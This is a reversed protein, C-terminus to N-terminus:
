CDAARYGVGDHLNVSGDAHLEYFGTWWPMESYDSVTLYAHDDIEDIGVARGRELGEVREARENRLDIRWIEWYLAFWNDDPSVPCLSGLLCRWRTLVGFRM